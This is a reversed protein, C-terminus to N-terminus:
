FPWSRAAAKALACCDAAVYSSLNCELKGSLCVSLGLGLGQVRFALVRVSLSATSQFCDLSDTGPWCLAIQLRLMFTTQNSSQESSRTSYLCELGATRPWCVATQLTQMSRAELDISVRFTIPTPANGGKRRPPSDFPADSGLWFDVGTGTQNQLVFTSVGLIDLDDNETAAAVSVSPPDRAVATAREAVLQAVRLAKTLSLGLTVELPLKSSVSM